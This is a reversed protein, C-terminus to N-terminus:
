THGFRRFTADLVRAAVDCVESIPVAPLFPTGREMWFLLLDVTVSDQASVQLTPIAADLVDFSPHTHAELMVGSAAAIELCCFYICEFALCFRAHLSLSDTKADRLLAGCALLRPRICELCQGRRQTADIKTQDDPLSETAQMQPRTREGRVTNESSVGM